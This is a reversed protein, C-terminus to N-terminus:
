RVGCLILSTTRLIAVRMSVSMPIAGEKGVQAFYYRNFSSFGGGGTNPLHVYAIRGGTLEDM